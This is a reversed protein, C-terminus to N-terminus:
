EAAAEYFAGLKNVMLLKVVRYSRDDRVVVSGPRLTDKDERVVISGPGAVKEGVAALLGDAKAVARKRLKAALSLAKRKAWDKLGLAVAAQLALKWWM